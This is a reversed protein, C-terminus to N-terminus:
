LMLRFRILRLLLLCHIRGLSPAWTNLWKGKEEEREILTRAAPGLSYKPLWTLLLGDHRCSSAPASLLCIEKSLVHCPEPNSYTKRKFGLRASRKTSDILVSRRHMNIFGGAAYRWIFFHSLIM